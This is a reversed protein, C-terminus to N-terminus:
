EKAQFLNELIYKSEKVLINQKILDRLDAMAGSLNEQTKSADAIYKKYLEISEEYKGLRLTSLAINFMAYYADNQYRIARHSFSICKEFDGLCYYVWGLNGLAVSATSDIAIARLLAERADKNKGIQNYCLGETVLLYLNGPYLKESEEYYTIAKNYDKQRYLCDGVRMLAYPNKKDLELAKQYDPMAQDDKNDFFYADGRGLYSLVRNPELNISKTFTSVASGYDKKIMLLEAKNNLSL